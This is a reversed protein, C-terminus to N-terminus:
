SEQITITISKPAKGLFSKAVYVGGTLVASSQDTARFQIVKGHEKFVDLVVTVSKSVPGAKATM